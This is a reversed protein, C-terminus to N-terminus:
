GFPVRVSKARETLDHPVCFQISAYGGRPSTATQIKIIKRM